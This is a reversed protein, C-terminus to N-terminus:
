APMFLPFLSDDLLFAVHGAISVTARASCRSTQPLGDRDQARAKIKFDIDESIASTLAPSPLQDRPGMWHRLLGRSRGALGDGAGAGVASPLWGRVRSDSPVSLVRSM